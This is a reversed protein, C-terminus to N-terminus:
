KGGESKHGKFSRQETAMNQPLAESLAQNQPPTKWNFANLDCEIRRAKCLSLITPYWSAPFIKRERVLRISRDKIDLRDKLEQPDLEDLIKLAPFQEM